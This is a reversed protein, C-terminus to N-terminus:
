NEDNDVERRLNFTKVISSKFIRYYTFINKTSSSDVTGRIERSTASNLLETGTSLAVRKVVNEWELSKEAPNDEASLSALWDNFPQNLKEYYSATAEAGLTKADYLGQLTGKDKGFLWVYTNVQDALKVANDIVTLWPNGKGKDRFLVNTNIQIEDVYEAAPLQSQATGDNVLSIAKLHFSSERDLYGNNVLRRLWSVIGPERISEEENLYIYRNLDRWMGRKLNNLRRLDPNLGEEKRSERWTTMPEVFANLSDLKSLGTPFIIPKNQKWEIHILRSWVTYLQAINQPLTNETRSKVYDNIPVEWVPKQNLSNKTLENPVLVLNLMLTEFLNKGEALVPNLSYLWGKSITVKPNIKTKDTVAAYNQYNILWRVLEAISIDNKHIPTNPSFVNPKNNSESIMRNIQKIAVTGKGMEVTRNAPVLNNYQDHTAQYFPYEEDFFDFHRQYCRLYDMLAQSFKGEQYLKNWTTELSTAIQEKDNAFAQEDFQVPRMSQRDLKIWDYPHDEADYRSYVTTLIALLFRLIALDQSKMEGALQRYDAAHTFLKELSIEQEQNQKDIVKIWPDMILNFHNESM